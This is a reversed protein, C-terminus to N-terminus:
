GGPSAGVFRVKYRPAHRDACVFAADEAIAQAILLHDFPDRHDPHLPLGGLTVLHGARIDLLTFGEREIAEAIERVDAVLKGIRVKGPDAILARVQLGLREDDALGGV